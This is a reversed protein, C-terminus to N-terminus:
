RWIKGGYFVVINALSFMINIAGQHYQKLLLCCIGAMMFTGCALPQCITLIIKIM